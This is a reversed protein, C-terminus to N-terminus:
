GFHAMIRRAEAIMAERGLSMKWARYDWLGAERRLAGGDAFTRAAVREGEITHAEVEVPRFGDGEFFALRAEDGAAELSAVVGAVVEGPAPCLVPFDQGVVRYRQYGKVYAEVLRPPEIARDLVIELLETDMLTGYFFWRM